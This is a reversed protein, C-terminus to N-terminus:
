TTQQQTVQNLQTAQVTMIRQTGIRTTYQCPICQMQAEGVPSAPHPNVDGHVSQWACANVTSEDRSRKGALAALTRYPPLMELNIRNQWGGM